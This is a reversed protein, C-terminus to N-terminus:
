VSDPWRVSLEGALLKRRANALLFCSDPAVITRRGIFGFQLELFSLLAINIFCPSNNIKSCTLCFLCTVSPIEDTRKKAVSLVLRNRQLTQLNKM